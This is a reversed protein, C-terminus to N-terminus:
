PYPSQRDSQTEPGVSRSFERRVNFGTKYYVEGVHDELYLHYISM